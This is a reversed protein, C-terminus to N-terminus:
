GVQKKDYVMSIKERDFDPGPYLDILERPYIENVIEHCVSAYNADDRWENARDTPKGDEDILKMQRLPSLLNSAAKDSTLSLLSKLYSGTVSAPLSKRFQARIAWWNSEPIKPYASNESVM